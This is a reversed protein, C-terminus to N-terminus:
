TLTNRSTATGWFPMDSFSASLTPLLSGLIRLLSGCHAPKMFPELVPIGETRSGLLWSV